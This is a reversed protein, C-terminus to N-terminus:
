LVAQGITEDREFKWSTREALLIAM